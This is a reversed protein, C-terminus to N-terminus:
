KCGVKLLQPVMEFMYTWYTHTEQPQRISGESNQESVSGSAAASVKSPPHRESHHPSSASTSAYIQITKMQWVSVWSRLPQPVPQAWREQLTSWIQALAFGFSETQEVNKTEHVAEHFRLDREPLIKCWLQWLAARCRTQLANVGISNELKQRFCSIRFKAHAIPVYILRKTASYSELFKMSKSGQVQSSGNTRSGLALLGRHRNAIQFLDNRAPVPQEGLKTTKSTLYLIGTRFWVHVDGWSECAELWRLDMMQQARPLSWNLALGYGTLYFNFEESEESRLPGVQARACSPKALSRGVTEANRRKNKGQKRMKRKKEENAITITFHITSHNLDDGRVFLEDHCLFDADNATSRFTDPPRTFSHLQWFSRTLGLPSVHHFM